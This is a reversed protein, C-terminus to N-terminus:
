QSDIDNRASNETPSSRKRLVHDSEEEEYYQVKTENKVTLRELLIAGASLAPWLMLRQKWNAGMLWALPAAMWLSLCYFCDLLGLVRALRVLGDCWLEWPGDEGYFLPDPWVM